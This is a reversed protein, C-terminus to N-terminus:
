RDSSNNSWGPYRRDDNNSEDGSRKVTVINENMSVSVGEPLSRSLTGKPGKVTINNGDIKFEVGKPLEILKKGVRSM